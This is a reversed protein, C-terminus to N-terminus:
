NEPIKVSLHPYFFIGIQNMNFKSSDVLLRYIGRAGGGKGEREGFTVGVLHHSVFYSTSMYM